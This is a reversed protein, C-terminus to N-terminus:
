LNFLKVPQVYPGSVSILGIPKDKYRALAEFQKDQGLSKIREFDPRSVFGLKQGNRLQAAEDQTVPLAPIDDLVSDVPTLANELAAIHDMEELKDLLIMNEGGMCGVHTRRLAIIHGFCGLIQGMDRAISRIYTGKGCSITFSSTNAADDHATLTLDEVLVERSKIEFEEGDRALDYAREGNIKIASFRPPTQTITGTFQPILPTIAVQEPRKDSQHTVTGESDDTDRAEGWQVTFEYRKLSDQIYPVTKTAEGLAIPLCGTALPDLTGAHGAKQANFFRRVRGVAQTSTMGAPKDLNIWGHIPDGKKRRGM